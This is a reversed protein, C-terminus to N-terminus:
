RRTGSRTLAALLETDTQRLAEDAVVRSQASQLWPQMEEAARGKLSGGELVAGSLNGSRLASEMRGIVAEPADGSGDGPKIQIASRARSIMEGIFSSSNGQYHREIARKSSSQFDKMLASITPVGQDKYLALENVPLKRPSLSEVTALEGSFPRGDAIARKLNTFAIALAAAKTDGQREAQVKSVSNMERELATLRTLLPAVARAAESQADAAGTSTAAGKEASEIRAGFDALEKDIGSVHQVLMDMRGRLENVVEPAAGAQAPAAQAVNQSRLARELAITRNELRRMESKVDGTRVLGLQPLAAPALLIGAAAVGGGILGSLAYGMFRGSSPRKEPGGPAAPRPESTGRGPRNAGPGGPPPPGALRRAPEDRVREPKINLIPHPRKEDSM